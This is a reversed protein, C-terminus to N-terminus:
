SQSCVRHRPHPRVKARDHRMLISICQRAELSGGDLRIPEVLAPKIRLWVRTSPIHTASKPVAEKTYLLKGYDTAFLPGGLQELECYTIQRAAAPLREEGVVGDVAEVDKASREDRWFSVDYKYAVSSPQVILRTFNTHLQVLAGSKGGSDPRRAVLRVAPPPGAPPQGAPPPMLQLQQLPNLQPPPLQAQAQLTAPAHLPQLSQLAAVGSAAACVPPASVAIAAESAAEDDIEPRLPVFSSAAPAALQQASSPESHLLQELRPLGGGALSGLPQLHQMAPPEQRSAKEPRSDGSEAAESPRKEVSRMPVTSPEPKAPPLRPQLKCLVTGDDLLRALVLRSAGDPLFAVHLYQSSSKLRLKAFDKLEAEDGAVTLLIDDGGPGVDAAEVKKFKIEAPAGPLTPESTVGQCVQIFKGEKTRWDWVEM